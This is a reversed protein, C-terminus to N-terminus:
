CGDGCDTPPCCALLYAKLDDMHAIVKVADTRYKVTKGTRTSTLLGGRRLLALHESATSQGLGAREAVEGVSLEAGGAFLMMVQQRTESALAKLFDRAGEDLEPVVPPTVAM